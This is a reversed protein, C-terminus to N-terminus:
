MVRRLHAVTTMQLSLSHVMRSLPFTTSCGVMIIRMTLCSHHVDDGDADTAGDALLLKDRLAKLTAAEDGDTGKFTIPTEVGNQTYVVDLNPDTSPVGISADHTKIVEVKLRMNSPTAAATESVDLALATRVSVNSVSKFAFVGALKDLNNEIFTSAALVGSDAVEIEGTLNDRFGLDIWTRVDKIMRPKQDIKYFHTADDYAAELHDYGNNDANKSM